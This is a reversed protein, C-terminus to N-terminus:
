LYSCTAKLFIVVAFIKERHQRELNAEVKYSCFHIASLVELKSCDDFVFAALYLTSFNTVTGLKQGKVKIENASNTM